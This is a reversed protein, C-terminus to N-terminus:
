APLGNFFSAALRFLAPSDLIPATSPSFIRNDTLVPRAGSPSGDIGPRVRTLASCVSRADCCSRLFIGSVRTGMWTPVLACLLIPTM